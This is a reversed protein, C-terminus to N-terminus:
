RSERQAYNINSVPNSLLHSREDPEGNQLYEVDIIIKNIYM